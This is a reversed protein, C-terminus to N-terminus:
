WKIRPNQQAKSKDRGDTRNDDIKGRSAASVKPDSTAKKTREKLM